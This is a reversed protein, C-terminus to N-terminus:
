TRRRRLGLLSIGGTGLLALSGPEPVAGGPPAIGPTASGLTINDWGVYRANHGFYVSRATGAFSVGGPVFPSFKGTPDPAGNLPSTPLELTALLNGTGNLGDYVAIAVSFAPSTYYFSFGTDFGGAVNMTDASGSGFAMITDPSPEGGFDGGGGADSDVVAYSDVFTVGYNIGPGSGLSGTAGNYFNGVGEQDKLGEFDMTVVSARAAFTTSALLGAAVIIRTGRM